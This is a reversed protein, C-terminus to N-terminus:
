SFNEQKGGFSYVSQVKPLFKRNLTVDVWTEWIFEWRLPSMPRFSTGISFCTHAWRTEGLFLWSYGKACSFISLGYSKRQKNQKTTRTSEETHPVSASRCLPLAVSDLLPEWCCEPVWRRRGDGQWPFRRADGSTFLLFFSDRGEPTSTFELSAGWTQEERLRVWKLLGM